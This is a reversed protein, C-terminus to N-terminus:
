AHFIPEDDFPFSPSEPPGQSIPAVGALAAIQVIAEDITHDYRLFSFWPITVNCSSCRGIQRGDLM